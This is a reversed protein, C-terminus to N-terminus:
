IMSPAPRRPPALDVIIYVDVHSLGHFSNRGKGRKGLPNGFHCGQNRAVVVVSIMWGASMQNGLTAQAM